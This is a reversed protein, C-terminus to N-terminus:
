VHQGRAVHYGEWDISIFASPNPTDNILTVESATNRSMVPVAFRGSNGNAAGITASLTGLNKTTCRYDVTPYGLRSVRVDFAGAEAYNVWARTVQTRGRTVGAQGSGAAERVFFCGLTGMFTFQRGVEVTCGTLDGAVTFTQSGVNVSVDRIVGAKLKSSGKVIIAFYHSFDPQFPVQFTSVPPYVGPGTATIAAPQITVRRDVRYARAATLDLREVNTSTGGTSTRREILMHLTTGQVGIARINSSDGFEWRHWASQLREAGNTYFQYTYLANPESRSLAVLLSNVPSIAIKHVGKPIYEPVHGSVDGAQAKSDIGDLYFNYFSTWDGRDVPFYLTSGLGAPRVSSSCEFDTVRQTSANKPTLASDSQLEFQATDSFMFLRQGFAVAHRLISLKSTSTVTGSVPDSDLLSTVTTRYFNFYDGTESFDFSEGSLIGMRDQYFFLDNIQKGVFDPGPNTEPDGVTQASWPLSRIMFGSAYPTLRVPMTNADLTFSTQTPDPVERWVNESSDFRLYYDGAATADGGELKVHFGNPVKSSPLEAVSRVSRYIVASASGGQGDEVTIGSPANPIHMVSGNLNVTVGKDRLQTALINAILSTDALPSMWAAQGDATTWAAEGYGPVNVKYTRGYNGAKIWVLAPRSTDVPAIASKQVTVTNNILFTTDGEKVARISAPAANLYPFWLETFTSGNADYVPMRNGTSDLVRAVGGSIHLWFVGRSGYDLMEYYGEGSTQAIGAHVTGARKALGTAPSSYGNLQARMHSPLRLLEPQQSVGGILNPISANIQTM